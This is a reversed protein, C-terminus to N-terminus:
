GITRSKKEGTLEKLKYIITAVSLSRTERESSSGLSSKLVRKADPDHKVQMNHVLLFSQIRRSSWTQASESGGRDFQFVNVAALM